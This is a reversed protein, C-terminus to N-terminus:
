ISGKAVHNPCPRQLHRFGGYITREKLRLKGCRQPPGNLRVYFATSEKQYLKPGAQAFPTRLIFILEKWPVAPMLAGVDVEITAFKLAVPIKRLPDYETCCEGQSLPLTDHSVRTPPM